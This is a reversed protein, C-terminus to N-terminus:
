NGLRFIWSLRTLFLINKRTHGNKRRQYYTSIARAAFAAARLTHSTSSIPRAKKLISFTSIADNDAAVRRASLWIKV